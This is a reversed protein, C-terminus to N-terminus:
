LLDSGPSLDHKGFFFRASRAPNHRAQRHADPGVRGLTRDDHHTSSLSKPPTQSRQGPGQCRLRPCFLSIGPEPLAVCRHAEFPSSAEEAQSVLGHYLDLSAARLGDVPWARHVRRNEESPPQLKTGTGTPRDGKVVERLTASM